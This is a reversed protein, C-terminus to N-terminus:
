CKECIFDKRKDCRAVIFTNINALHRNLLICGKSRNADREHWPPYNTNVNSVDPIINGTPLWKWNNAHYYGSIWM